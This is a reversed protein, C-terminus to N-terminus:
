FFDNVESDYPTGEVKTTGGCYPPCLSGMNLSSKTQKGSEMLILDKQIWGNSTTIQKTGIAVLTQLASFEPLEEYYDPYAGFYFRIGDARHEDILHVYEGFEKIGFTVSLSDPKGIMEGNYAHRHMLYNRKLEEVHAEDVMAGATIVQAEDDHPTGEIKTTSGCLPPCITGLNLSMTTRKGDDNVYYLDKSTGNKERAAVLVITQLGSFEPRSGFNEPYVGFYIKVAGAGIANAKQIFEKVIPLAFSVSLSDNRGLRTSHFEWRTDRYNTRLMELHDYDVMAGLLLKGLVKTKTPTMM